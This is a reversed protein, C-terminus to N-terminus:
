RRAAAVCRALDELYEEVGQDHVPTVTMHLAAPSALRSIHWGRQQMADGVAHIDFEDSGFAIVSLDPKGLVHLGGIREIGEIYRDRLHMVRQALARYGTEGLYHMVAWAAAVAGGALTGSLTQSRWTGKPWQNYEFTQHAHDDPDAHLLVSVGNAAYGFTHLDASLSRVGPLALDFRPVGAVFRAVHPALFGGICADVHLWVDCDRAIRGIAEVPDIAGFPQSPASAVIMMTEPEICQGLTEVSARYDGGIAVRILDLGMIEAAQEYVPHASAPLLLHPRRVHPRRARFARYASCVALMASEASGCTVTGAAERGGGLLSLSIQVLDEQMRQLSPFLHPARANESIFMAYARRAVDLVDEGAYYVDLSARGQRWDTDASRLASLAQQLESWPQGRAPLTKRGQVALPPMM